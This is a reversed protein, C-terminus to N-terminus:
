GQLEAPRPGSQSMPSATCHVNGLHINHLPREAESIHVVVAVLGEELGHSLRKRESHTQRPAKPNVWHRRGPLMGATNFPLSDLAKEELDTGM